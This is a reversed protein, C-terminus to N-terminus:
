RAGEDVLDALANDHERRHVRETFWTAGSGALVPAARDTASGTAGGHATRPEVAIAAPKSTTRGTAPRAASSTGPETPPRRTSVAAAPDRPDGATSTPSRNSSRASAPSAPEAASSVSRSTPASGAVRRDPCGADAGFGAWRLVAAADTSGGGLGGGHPIRKDITVDRPARGARACTGGPQLRRDARWRRVPRDGDVGTGVPHSRSCTTSISASWRPM